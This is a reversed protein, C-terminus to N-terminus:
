HERSELIRRTMEQEYLDEIVKIETPGLFHKIAKKIGKLRAQWYWYQPDYIGKKEDKFKSTGLGKEKEAIYAEFEAIKKACDKDGVFVRGALDSKLEEKIFYDVALQTFKRDVRDLSEKTTKYCWILYRRILNKQDASLRKVTM